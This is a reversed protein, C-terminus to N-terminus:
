KVKTYYLSIVFIKSRKKQKKTIRMKKEKWINLM